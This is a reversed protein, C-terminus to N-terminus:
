FIIFVPYPSVQSAFANFTIIPGAIYLPAYLLYALYAVLNYQAESVPKEQFCLSDSNPLLWYIHVLNKILGSEAELMLTGTKVHKFPKPVIVSLESLHYLIFGHTMRSYLYFLCYSGELSSFSLFEM